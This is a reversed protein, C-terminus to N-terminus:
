PQGMTPFQLGQRKLDESFYRRVETRTRRVMVHKLMRDRVRAATEKVADLYAPYSTDFGDLYRQLDGFFRKLDPVGPVSSKRRPQFLKLQALIDALKNNLPTASVLVVQKGRCIAHLDEYGQTLENRFRHAEDVLVVRYKDTERERVGCLKGLSAVEVGPVYFQNLTERWYNM